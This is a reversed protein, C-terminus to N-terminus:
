GYRRCVPGAPGSYQYSSVSGAVRPGPNRRPSAAIPSWMGWLPGKVGSNHSRENAAARVSKLAAELVVIELPSELVANAVSRELVANELLRSVIPYASATPVQLEHSRSTWSRSYRSGSELMTSNWRRKSSTGPASSESEDANGKAKPRKGSSMSASVGR